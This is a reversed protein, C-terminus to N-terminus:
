FFISLSAIFKLNNITQNLEFNSADTANVESIPSLSLLEYNLKAGIGYGFMNGKEYDRFTSIRTKIGLSISPLAVLEYDYSYNTLRPSTTEGTGRKIGLGVYALLKNRVYPANYFYYNVHAGFNMYTMRGNIGGLDVNLNSLDLGFDVSWKKLSDHARILHFEYSAALGYGLNQHNSDSDTYNPMLNSIFSLQVENGSEISLVNERRFKERAIGSSKLYRSLQESDMDASWLPGEKDLVAKASKTVRNKARERALSEEMTNPISLNSNAGTLDPKGSYLMEKYGDQAASIKILQDKNQAGMQADFEQASLKSTDVPELQSDVYKYRLRGDRVIIEDGNRLQTEKTVKYITSDDIDQAYNKDSPTEKDQILDTPVQGDIAHQNNFETKKSEYAKIEYVPKKKYRGSATQSRIQLALTADPAFNARNIKDGSIDKFYWYSERDSVKLLEISGLYLYKPKQYDGIRISVDAVDGTKLGTLKGVSLKLTRGSQSLAVVKAQMMAYTNAMLLNLLLIMVFQKYKDM